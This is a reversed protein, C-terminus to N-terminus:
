MIVPTESVSDSNGNCFCIGPKHSLVECESGMSLQKCLSQRTVQSAFDSSRNLYPWHCNPCQNGDVHWPSSDNVVWSRVSNPVDHALILETRGCCQSDKRLMSPSHVPGCQEAGQRQGNRSWNLCGLLWGSDSNNGLRNVIYMIHKSIAFVFIWQFSMLSSTSVTNVNTSVSCSSRLKVWRIQTAMAFVFGPNTLYCRANAAWQCSNVCLSARLLSGTWM